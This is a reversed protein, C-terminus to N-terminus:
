EMGMSWDCVDPFSNIITMAMFYVEERNKGPM